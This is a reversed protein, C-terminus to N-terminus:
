TRLTLETEAIFISSHRKGKVPQPTFFDHAMMRAGKLEPPRNDEADRIAVERDQLVLREAPIAPQNRKIQALAQGKGGGVDVVLPADPAVHHANDSIWNFPFIGMVPLTENLTQMSINFDILRQGDIADWFNKDPVNWGFGHPSHTPELPEKRGYTKFYDPFRSYPVMGEDFRSMATLM